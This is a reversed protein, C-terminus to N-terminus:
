GGRSFLRGLSFRQWAMRIRPRPSAVSFPRGFGGRRRVLGAGALAGAVWQFPYSIGRAVRYVLSAIMRGIGRLAGALCWIVVASLTQFYLLLGLGLGILVYARLEGWNGALLLAFVTPTVVIWFLLDALATAIQKPRFASRLVRYVDFLLGVISGALITMLFAYTQGALSMM